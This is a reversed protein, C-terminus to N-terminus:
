WSCSRKFNDLFHKPNHTETKEKEKKKEKRKKKLDGIEMEFLTSRGAGAWHRAPRGASGTLAALVGLPMEVEHQQTQPPQISSLGARLQPVGVLITSKQNCGRAERKREVLRESLSYM